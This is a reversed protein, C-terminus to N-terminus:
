YNIINTLFRGSQKFYGLPFPEKGRSKNWRIAMDKLEKATILTIITDSTLQYQTQEQISNSTFSPAIVIFVAVSKESSKIYRDFQNIHDKLNVDTEKSKNDWMILKDNFALIGDPHENGKIQQIPQVNLLSEFLYHTAKEFNRECELDKKIIGRDRLETLKRGALLEYYNLYIERPDGELIEIETYNDYYDILQKILEEKVKNSPLNLEKSWQSLESTSLGDRASFGGLINSPKINKIVFDKMDNLTMYKPYKINSKEIIGELYTKSRLRKDSLLKEYGKIKIEYGFLHRLSNVIEDPLVDCCTGDNDRIKYLLGIKQLEKKAANIQENNHLANKKQPYMGLQAEIIKYEEDTIGLKHQIRYLLKKEDISIQDDNDWAAELVFTLLDLENKNYRNKSITFEAAKNIIAQEYKIIEENLTKCDLMYNDKNILIDKLIISSIIRYNRDDCFIMQNYAKKINDIDFYQKKTKILGAILEDKDLSRYDFVYANAVRKIDNVTALNNVVM